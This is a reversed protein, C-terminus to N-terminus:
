KQLLLIMKWLYLIMLFLTDFHSSDGRESSMMGASIEADSLGLLPDPNTIPNEEIIDTAVSLVPSFGLVKAQFNTPMVSSSPLSILALANIAPCVTSISPELDM